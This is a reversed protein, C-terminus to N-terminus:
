GQEPGCVFAPYAALHQEDHVRGVEGVGNGDVRRVLRSHAGQVLNALPHQALVGGGRRSTLRADHDRGQEAVCGGRVRQDRQACVALQDDDARV